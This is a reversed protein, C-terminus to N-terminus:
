GSSVRLIAMEGGRAGDRRAVMVGAARGRMGGPPLLAEAIRQTARLGGGGTVPLAEDEEELPAYRGYAKNDLERTRGNLTTTLWINRCSIPAFARRGPGHLPGSMGAPHEGGTGSPTGTSTRRSRAPLVEVEVGALEFIADFEAGFKGDRDRLLYKPPEPLDAFLAAVARAQGAVWAHAPEATQGAVHVRRSGIHIFFLVFVDRVGGLTWVQAYLLLRLGVADSGAAHRLRALQRPRAAAGDKLYEVAHALERDTATSLFLLFSQLLTKM